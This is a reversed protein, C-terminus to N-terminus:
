YVEQQYCKECYVIEPRDPAYSTEFENNCGEKMCKRHYLKHNNRFRLRKASRCDVCNTPLGIKLLKLLQLEKELIRFPKSCDECEIVEQLINLDVNNIDDPLNGKNITINYSKRYPEIWLLGSNEVEEKELPIFDYALTNNYGYLSFEMPFFEGYKYVNGKKDLYPMDNMHKKIKEVMEFYEEKTYKKNLICYQKNRLGICGFLDSSGGCRMSYELNKVDGWCSFCFKLNSTNYGVVCSEYCSFNNDGWISIDYSDENKPVQLFQCYKLDKGERILYSELVNKSNTIYEGSVKDNKVGQIYKKPFRNWFDYILKKVNKLGSITNLNLDNLRKKYEEETLQENLFCFRSNVLNVCGFCDSCNKCDVSFWVDRCETNRISFNTRYCKSLWFSEYCQESNNIHSNDICNRCSDVANGYLCDESYNSNFLLYCNKLYGANASYDSNVLNIVDRSWVPVDKMLDFLQEFFSKSFDYDRAYEEAGWDDAWWEPEDYVKLGSEPPILTIIDKGTKASKNRFLVDQNRFVFRRQMRCEPCFTPPPVKIKEYFIFDESEITFDNKCNQCVQVSGTSHTKNENQYQM